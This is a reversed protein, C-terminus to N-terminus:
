KKNCLWVGRPVPYLWPAVKSFQLENRLCPSSFDVHDQIVFAGNNQFVVWLRGYKYAQDAESSPCVIATNSPGVKKVVESPTDGCKVRNILDDESVKEHAAKAAVPLTILTLLLM